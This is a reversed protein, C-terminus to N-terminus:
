LEEDLYLAGQSLWKKLSKTVHPRCEKIVNDLRITTPHNPHLDNKVIVEKKGKLETLKKIKTLTM